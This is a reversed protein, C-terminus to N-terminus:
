LDSLSQQECFSRESYLGEEAVTNERANLKGVPEEYMSLHYSRRLETTGTAM